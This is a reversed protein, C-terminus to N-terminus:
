RVRKVKEQIVKGPPPIFHSTCFFAKELTDRQAEYESTALWGTREWAEIGRPIKKGCRECNAEGEMEVKQWRWRRMLTNEM